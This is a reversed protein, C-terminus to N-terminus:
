GPADEYLEAFADAKVPWREGRTGTVVWDGREARAPGELTQVVTAEAARVAGVVVQRKRFWGAADPLPDFTDAFVDPKCPYVEGRIGTVIWDGADCRGSSTTSPRKPSAAGLPSLLRVNASREGRPWRRAM